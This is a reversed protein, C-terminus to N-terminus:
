LVGMAECWEIVAMTFLLLWLTVLAIRGIEELIAKCRKM